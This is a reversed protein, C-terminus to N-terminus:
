SLIVFTIQLVPLSSPQVDGQKNITCVELRLLKIIHARPVIFCYKRELPTVFLSVATPFPSLEALASNASQSIFDSEPFCARFVAGDKIYMADFFARPSTM